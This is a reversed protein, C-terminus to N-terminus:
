TFRYYHVRDPTLGTVDIQVTNDNASQAMGSGMAVVPIFNQHQSVEVTVAGSTDAHAWLRASISTVEGAAVGLDFAASAPNVVPGLLGLAVVLTPPLSRGFVSRAVVKRTM